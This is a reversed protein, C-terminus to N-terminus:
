ELSLSWASFYWFYKALTFSKPLFSRDLKLFRLYVSLTALSLRGGDDPFSRQVKEFGFYFRQLLRPVRFVTKVSANNHVRREETKKAIGIVSADSSHSRLIQVCRCAERHGLHFSDREVLHVKQKNRHLQMSTNSELKQWDHVTCTCTFMASPSCTNTLYSSIDFAHRNSWRECNLRPNVHRLLRNWLKRFKRWQGAIRPYRIAQHPDYLLNAAYLQFVIAERQSRILFALTLRVHMVRIAFKMYSEVGALLVLANHKRANRGAFIGQECKINEKIKRKIDKRRRKPAIESILV